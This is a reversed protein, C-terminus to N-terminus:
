IIENQLTPLIVVTVENHYEEATVKLLGTAIGDESSASESQM